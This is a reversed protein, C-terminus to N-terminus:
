RSRYLTVSAAAAENFIDPKAIRVRCAAAQPAALCQAALDELLTELLDTHPRTAWTKLYDRIRDYDIFPPGGDECYALIEVDVILRTPREPHREWPHLGVQAEVVVGQLAVSVHDRTADFGM